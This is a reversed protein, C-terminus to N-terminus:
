KSRLEMMMKVTERDKLREDASLKHYATLYPHIRNKNDRRGDSTEGYKWQNLLHFRCWRIHELECVADDIEYSGKEKMIMLRIEHYDASAINSMKTFGDLEEWDKNPDNNESNDGYIDVYNHNLEMALSYLTETMINEQTLLEDYRGFVKVRDNGYIGNVLSGDPSFCYIDSNTCIEFIAALLKLDACETVIVRDMESLLCIDEEISSDHFILEDDNMTCLDKHLSKYLVSSGWVHYEIHQKLSYLNNLLGNNLIREGLEGLGVIAIRVNMGEIGYKLLDHSKWFDRAIIDNLNFCRLGNRNMYHPNFDDLKMYVTKGELEERHKEYFGLAAKDDSYLIISNKSRNVSDNDLLISHSINNKLIEGFSNDSYITITGASMGLFYNKFRNYLEKIALIVGSALTVPALWRAIEILINKEDSVPNVAYLAFAGYFADTLGTDEIYYGVTGIIFPLILFLFFLIRKAM